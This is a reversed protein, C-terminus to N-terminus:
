AESNALAECSWRNDLDQKGVVIMKTTDNMVNNTVPMTQLKYCYNIM